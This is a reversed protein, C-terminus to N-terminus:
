VPWYAHISKNRMEERVGALFTVIEEQSWGLVRSFAAITLAELGQFTDMNMLNWAGLEKYKKDKPWSNTPWLLPTEIIDVFGADRLM